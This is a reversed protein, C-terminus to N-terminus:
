SRLKEVNNETEPGTEIKVCALGIFMVALGTFVIRYSYKM